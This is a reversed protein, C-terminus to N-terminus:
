LAFVRMRVATPLGTDGRVTAFTVFRDTTGASAPYDGYELTKDPATLVGFTQADTDLVFHSSQVKVLYRSGKGAVCALPERSLFVFPGGERGIFTGMSGLSGGTNYNAEVSFAFSQGMYVAEFPVVTQPMVLQDVMQNGGDLNLATIGYFVGDDNKVRPAITLIGDSVRPYAAFRGISEWLGKGEADGARWRYCHSHEGTKSGGLAPMKYWIVSDGTATLRPPDWNADGEDLKFPEGTLQGNTLQQAVLVWDSAAYDMEVWAFVKESCRVDHFSFASGQTPAGVLTTARGSALSIIGLTNIERASAPAQMLAAWAGESHCPVTGLPLDWSFQAALGPDTEKYDETANVIKSSDTIVQPEGTSESDGGGDCGTLTVATLAVAGALTGGLFARRSFGRRIKDPLM